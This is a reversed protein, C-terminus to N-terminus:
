PAKRKAREAQRELAPQTRAEVLRSPLPLRGRPRSRLRSGALSAVHGDLYRWAIEVIAEDDVPSEDGRVEAKTSWHPDAVDEWERLAAPAHGLDGLIVVLVEVLDV